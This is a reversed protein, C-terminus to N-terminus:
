IKWWASDNGAAAYRSLMQSAGPFTDSTFYSVPKLSRGELTVVGQAGGEKGPTDTILLLHARGTQSISALPTLLESYGLFTLSLMSACIIWPRFAILPLCPRPSFPFHSPHSLDRRPSTMGLSSSLTVFTRPRHINLSFPQCVICPLSLLEHRRYNGHPSVTKILLLGVFSM